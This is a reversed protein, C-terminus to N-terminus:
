GLLLFEWPSPFWVTSIDVLTTSVVQNIRSVIIAFKGDQVTDYRKKGIIFNNITQVIHFRVVIEGHLSVLEIGSGHNFVTQRQSDNSFGLDDVFEYGGVCDLDLIEFIQNIVHHFSQVVFFTNHIGIKDLFKSRITHYSTPTSAAINVKRVWLDTVSLFYIFDPQVVLM